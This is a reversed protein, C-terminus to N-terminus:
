KKALASLESLAQELLLEPPRSGDLVVFRSESTKSLELFGARVRQHFAIDQDEIRDAAGTRNKARALGIAPDLDLLVVLDPLLGGTAINNIRKLTEVDLGRGFGQYALTSFIYRDCLVTEGAKLAPEILEKVHQARDAAFLLLECLPDINGPELLLSRIKTGLATGGPERTLRAARSGRLTEAVGRALTSKGSGEIGEFVIFYSM